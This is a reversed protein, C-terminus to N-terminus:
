KDLAPPAPTAIGAPGLNKEFAKAGDGDKEM